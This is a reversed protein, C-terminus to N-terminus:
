KYKQKYFRSYHKEENDLTTLNTKVINEMNDSYYINQIIYGKKIPATKMYKICNACPKSSQLKNKTSLRIVLINIPTLKKKIKLPKLKNIVDQEAHIGPMLGDSDAMQNVGFCLINNKYSM